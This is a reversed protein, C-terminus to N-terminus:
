CVHFLIFVAICLYTSIICFVDVFSQFTFVCLTFCTAPCIRGNWRALFIQHRPHTWWLSRFMSSPFLLSYGRGWYYSIATILFRANLLRPFVCSIHSCVPVFVCCIMCNWYRSGRDKKRIVTPPYWKLLSLPRKASCIRDLRGYRVFSFCQSRARATKASRRHGGGDLVPSTLATRQTAELCTRSLFM